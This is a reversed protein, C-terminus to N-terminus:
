GETLRYLEYASGFSEMLILQEDRLRELAELDRPTVPDFRAELIMELGTRHLLVHTVGERRWASAISESAYGHLHVTHLWRDLLADPRCDMACRYSRPEWLFLVVSREPLEQNIQEIAVAYWGLQRGLFDAESEFGLLVPLPQERVTSLVVGVLTLVLVGVVVARAVWGARVPQRRHDKLGKVAAAAVLALLGFAPFLLRTQILLETRAVGWLWFGYLV